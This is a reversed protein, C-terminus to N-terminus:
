TASPTHLCSYYYFFPARFCYKEVTFFFVECTRMGSAQHTFLPTLVCRTHFDSGDGVLIRTGHQLYFMSSLFTYFALTSLRTEKQLFNCSGDDISVTQHGAINERQVNAPIGNYNTKLTISRMLETHVITCRKRKNQSHASWLHLQKFTDAEESTRRGQSKRDCMDEETKAHFTTRVFM